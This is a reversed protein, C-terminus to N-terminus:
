WATPWATGGSGGGAKGLLAAWSTRFCGSRGAAPWRRRAVGARVAVQRGDTGLYMCEDGHVDAAGDSARYPPATLAGVYPVAEDASLLPLTWPDHGDRM